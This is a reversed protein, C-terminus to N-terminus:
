AADMEPRLRHQRNKASAGRAAPKRWGAPAKGCCPFRARRSPVIRATSGPMVLVADGAGASRALEAPM